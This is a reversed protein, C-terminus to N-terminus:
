LTGEFAETLGALYEHNPQIRLDQFSQPGTPDIRDIRLVFPHTFAPSSRVRLELNHASEAGKLEITLVRVVPIGNQSAALSLWRVAEVAIGFELSKGRPPSQAASQKALPM